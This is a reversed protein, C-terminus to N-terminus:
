SDGIMSRVAQKALGPAPGRPGAFLELCLIHVDHRECGCVGDTSVHLQDPASREM